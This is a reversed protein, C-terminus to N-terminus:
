LDSSLFFIRYNNSLSHNMLTKQVYRPLGATRSIFDNWSLDHSRLPVGVDKGMVPVVIAKCQCGEVVRSCFSSFLLSEICLNHLPRAYNNSYLIYYM